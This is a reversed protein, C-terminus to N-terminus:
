DVLQQVEIVNGEPDHFYMQHWGKLAWVGYDSFPVELRGLNDKIEEVDSVRFAHHGRLIPNVAHDNTSLLYPEPPALHVEGTDARLFVTGRPKTSALREVTFPKLGLAEQYFSVMRESNYTPVNVHHLEISM